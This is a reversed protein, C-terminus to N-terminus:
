LWIGRWGSSIRIHTKRRTERGTPSPPLQASLGPKLLVPTRADAKPSGFPCQSKRRAKHCILDLCYFSRQRRKIRKVKNEM